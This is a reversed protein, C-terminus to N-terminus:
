ISVEGTAALDYWERLAERLNGRHRDFLERAIREVSAPRSGLLDAAISALLAADTRCHVLTPLRGSTHATIILGRAHRVRWRFEMWAPLSLLGASDLLMLSGPSVSRAVTRLQQRFIGASAPRLQLRHVSWGRARLLPELDEILTTKGSGEPGVIAARYKLAALRKLMSEWTTDRLRYRCRLIRDTAFPNERAKM